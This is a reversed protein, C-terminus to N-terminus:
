TTGSPGEVLAAVAGATNASMIDLEVVSRFAIGCHDDFSHQGLDGTLVQGLEAVHEAVPPSECALLRLPDEHLSFVVPEHRPKMGLLQGPLSCGPEAYFQTRRAAVM